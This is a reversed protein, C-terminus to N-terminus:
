RAAGSAAVGRVKGTLGSFSASVTGKPDFGRGSATFAFNVSGPLDARVRGPNIGTARGNVAWTEAPSWRLEGNVSAHGDFLDVEAPEFASATRASRATYTGRPM